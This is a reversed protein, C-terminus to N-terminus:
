PPPACGYGCAFHGLTEDFVCQVLSGCCDTSDICTDSPGHCFFVAETCFNDLYGGPSCYGGPGCDSDTRCKSGSACVNPAVDASSGRCDCPVGSPCDTDSECEDYSCQPTPCTPPPPILVHAALCRGNTGATCQSDSMCPAGPLNCVMTGPARTPCVSGSPRHSLPARGDLLGGDSPCSPPTGADYGADELLNVITGGDPGLAADLPWGADLPNPSTIASADLAGPPSSSRGGCAVALAFSVAVFLDRPRRAM